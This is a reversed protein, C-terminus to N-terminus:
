TTATGAPEPWLHPSLMRTVLSLPETVALTASVQTLLADGYRQLIANGFSVLTHM